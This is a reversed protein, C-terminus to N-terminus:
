NLLFLVLSYSKAMGGVGPTPAPFASGSGFVAAVSATTAARTILRKRRSRLSIHPSGILETHVEAFTELHNKEHPAAM